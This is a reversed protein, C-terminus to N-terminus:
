GRTHCIKYEQYIMRWVDCWYYGINIIYIFFNNHFDTLYLNVDTFELEIRYILTSLLKM